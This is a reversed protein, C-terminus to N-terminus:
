DKATLVAGYFKCFTMYFYCLYPFTYDDSLFIVSYEVLHIIKVNGNLFSCPVIEWLNIDEVLGGPFSCPM